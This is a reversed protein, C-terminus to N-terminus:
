ELKLHRCEEKFRDYNLPAVGPYECVLGGALNAMRAIDELVLGAALALAAVSIVTDGAGSVDSIARKPGKVWAYENRDAIFIGSESLTVMVIRCDLQDVLYRSAKLLSDSDTRVEMPVNSRLESLNPKFLDISRYRLFNRIKPDTCTLINQTLALNILSSIITQTLVGKNYDEMIVADFRHQTMLKRIRDLLEQEQDTSLDIIEERDVRLLQQNVAMVRTKLTTKRASSLLLCDTGIEASRLLDVIRDGESDSGILSALHTDAGMAKLNLAVNAAGGLRDETDEYLLVPVPAEPSIRSVKGSLYRDLMVDGVVLVKMQAFVSLAQTFSSEM